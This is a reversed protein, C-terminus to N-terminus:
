TVRLEHKLTPSGLDDFWALHESLMDFEIVYRGPEKPARMEIELTDVDGPQLDRHLIAGAYYRFLEEENEDLLHATLRVAGKEDDGEGAALWRALGTNEVRVRFRLEEGPAASGRGEELSLAATLHNPSTSDPYLDRKRCLFVARDEATHNFLEVEDFGVSLLLAEVCEVSPYFWNYVPEKADRDNELYALPHFKEKGPKLRRMFSRLRPEEKEAPIIATEIVLLERTVLYLRELALVLHKCHYILGLALTLDFYGIARPDLDYVSMRRYDIDLGLVRRVFQAQQVHHRQSDVGLVRAAGRRRAEISYFGANCGVDLVSKGSLDEPLCREVVKWYGRPHDADEGPSTEMRTTLGGGLDIKHFWPRLREVGAIIEERTM